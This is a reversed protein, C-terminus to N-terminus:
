NITYKLRDKLRQVLQIDTILRRQIIQILDEYCDPENLREILTNKECEIAKAKRLHAVLLNNQNISAELGIIYTELANSLYQYIM